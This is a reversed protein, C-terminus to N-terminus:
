RGARQAPTAEGVRRMILRNGEWTCVLDLPVQRHALHDCPREICHDCWAAWECRDRDWDDRTVESILLEFGCQPCRRGTLEGM